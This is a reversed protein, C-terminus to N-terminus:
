PVKKFSYKEKQLFDMVETLSDKLRPWAKESDHFVIIGGPKIHKRIINSCDEGKLTADFDGSLVSWM